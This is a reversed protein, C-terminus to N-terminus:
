PEDTAAAWALRAVVLDAQFAKKIAVIAISRISGTDLPRNLAYPEFADFPLLVEQWAGNTDFSAQYFQWPLWTHRTRLHVAYKEGNGRVLLRVGEFGRADFDRGQRRLDLRAQIFGGNNELSVAGTLHLGSRDDHRVLAAEGTSVGGMVQDSIFQWDGALPADTPRQFDDILYDGATANRTM